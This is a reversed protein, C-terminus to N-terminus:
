LVRRSKVVYGVIGIAALLAVITALSLLNLQNNSLYLIAYTAIWFCGFGQLLIQLGVSKKRQFNEIIFAHKKLPKIMLFLSFGFLFIFLTNLAPVGVLQITEILRIKSKSLSPYKFEGVTVSEKGVLRVLYERILKLSKPKLGEAVEIKLKKYSLQSLSQLIDGGYAAKLRDIEKTANLQGHSTIASVGPLQSMKRKIKSFSVKDDVLANFYPQQSKLKGLKALKMDIEDQYHITTILCTSSVIALACILFNQKGIKLFEILYFM